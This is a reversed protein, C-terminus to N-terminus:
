PDPKSKPKSLIALSAEACTRFTTVVMSLPWALMVGLLCKRPSVRYWDKAYLDHANSSEM